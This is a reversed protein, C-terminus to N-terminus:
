DIPLELARRLADVVRQVDDDRMRPFIPLSLAQEWYAQAEPLGDMTYGLRRYLAHAPIPIYHLQTGIGDARLADFV